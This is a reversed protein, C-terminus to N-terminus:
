QRNAFKVHAWVECFRDSYKTNGRDLKLCDLEAATKTKTFDM